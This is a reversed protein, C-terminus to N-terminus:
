PDPANPCIRKLPPAGESDETDGQAAEPVPPVPEFVPYAEPAEAELLEPVPEEKTLMPPEDTSGATIGGPDREQGLRPPQADEPVGEPPGAPSVPRSPQPTGGPSPETGKQLSGESHFSQNSNEDNLDLLILPGGGRPSTGRGRRERGRSRETGGGARRREEEQPDVVPVWKFIRLSTDGVTVWRKEWRRVKEITAMVKKIDDKARSRTEARVTRGAM